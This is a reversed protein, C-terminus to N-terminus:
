NIKTVNLWSGSPHIESIMIVCIGTAERTEATAITEVPSQTVHLAVPASLPAGDQFTTWTLVQSPPFHASELSPHHKAM